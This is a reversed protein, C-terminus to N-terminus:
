ILIRTAFFAVYLLMISLVAFVRRNDSMKGFMFALQYSALLMLTPLYIAANNFDAIIAILTFVSIISISGNFARLNANLNLVNMVNAFWAVILLAATTVTVLVINVIRETDMAAFLGSMEPMHFETTDILGFGLAIWWPTVLGIVIAIVTKLSFIKMQVCGIIFVPIYFAFCYQTMTLGSLIVFLLFIHRLRTTNAFSTWLLALCGPIVVALLTGTYFQDTIDPVSLMMILFFSAPLSTLARFPNFIQIMFLWCLATALILGTNVAMTVWHDSIWLNASDFFIGRDALFYTIEGRQFAIRAAALMLIGAVAVM